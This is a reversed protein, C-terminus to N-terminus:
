SRTTFCVEGRSSVIRLTWRLFSIGCCGRRIGGSFCLVLEARALELRRTLDFDIAVVSVSRGERKGCNGFIELSTRDAVARLLQDACMFHLLMRSAMPWVGIM